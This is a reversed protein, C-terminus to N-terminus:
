SSLDDRAYVAKILLRIELLVFVDWVLILIITGVDFLEKRGGNITSRHKRLPHTTFLIKQLLADFLVLAVGDGSELAEDIEVLLPKVNEEIHLKDCVEWFENINPNVRSRGMVRFLPLFQLREVLQTALTNAVPLRLHEVWVIVLEQQEVFDLVRKSPVAPHNLVAVNWSFLSSKIWCSDFAFVVLLVIIKDDAKFLTAEDSAEGVAVRALEKAEISVGSLAEISVALWPTLEDLIVDIALLPEFLSNVFTVAADLFAFYITELVVLVWVFEELFHDVLVNQWDIIM